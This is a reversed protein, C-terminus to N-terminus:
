ALPMDAPKSRFEPVRLPLTVSVLTGGGDSQIEMRGRLEATRERLGTIGVGGSATGSSQLSNLLEPPIGHGFDRIQLTVEAGEIRLRIEARKSGSHRHINILTEQLARFLTIEITEPLRQLDAPLDLNVEVGSRKAFGEVYWRAASSFGVEDLLPPHLLHSLTRIEAITTRLIERSELLIESGDTPQEILREINIGLAALYQGLGDHLERAIKRREEDQLQLLRASLRRLAATRLDILSELEAHSQSLAEEIEKRATIDSNIGIMRVPKGASDYFVKGRASLWRIRGDNARRIRWEGALEGTKLAAETAGRAGAQDEQLIRSHWAEYTGAFSGRELGYLAEMEPSWSHVDRVFDWEFAGAQGSELALRMREDAQRREAEAQVRESVDEVIGVFRTVRGSDRLPMGSVAADFVSGDKRTRRTLIGSVQRGARLQESIALWQSEQEPPLPLTKGIMEAATWGFLTEAAPNWRWIHRDVDMLVIAIPSAEFIAVLEDDKSQLNAEARKKKLDLERLIYGTQVIMFAFLAVAIIVLLATAFEPDVAFKQQLRLRLWGLLPLAIVTLLLLRRAAVGGIDEGLILSIVGRDTETFLIGLCLIGIYLATHLAQYSFSGVGYLPRSNYAYGVISLFSILGAPLVFLESLKLQTRRPLALLALGVFLFAAATNPAFRGPLVNPAHWAAMKSALFLRDIGFDAGTLYELTTVVGALFVFAASLRGLARRWSSGTESQLLVLAAGAVILCLATNPAMFNTGFPDKLRDSGIEWGLVTILGGVVSLFGALYPLRYRM